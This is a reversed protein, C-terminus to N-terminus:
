LSVLLLTERFYLLLPNQQNIIRPGNHKSSSSLNTWFGLKQLKSEHPQALFSVSKISFATGTTELSFRNKKNNNPTSKHNRSLVTLISLNKQGELMTNVWVLWKAISVKVNSSWTAIEWLYWSTDRRNGHHFVEQFVVALRIM